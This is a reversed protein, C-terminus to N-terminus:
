QRAAARDTVPRDVKVQLRQLAQAGLDFQGRAIHLRGRRFAAQRATIVAEGHNRDPCGFVGQHRSDKRGAPGLQEVRRALGLNDIQAVQQDRHPRLDLSDAARVQDDVADLAQVAAGIRDHGIPDLRSAVGAGRADGAAGDFQDAGIRAVHQGDGIRERRRPQYDFYGVRAHLHSRVLRQFREGYRGRRVGVSM